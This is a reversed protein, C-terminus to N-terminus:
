VHIADNVGTSPKLLRSMRCVSGAPFTEEGVLKSNVRLVGSTNTGTAAPTDAVLAAPVITSAPWTSEQSTSTAAPCTTLATPM